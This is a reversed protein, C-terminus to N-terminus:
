NGIFRQGVLEIRIAYNLTPTVLPNLRVNIQIGTQGLIILPEMLYYFGRDENTEGAVTASLDNAGFVTLPIGTLVRQGNITADFTANKAIADRIGPQWATEDIAAAEANVGDYARFGQVIMHESEAAIFNANNPWNTRQVTFAGQFFQTIGAVMFLQDYIQYDAVTKPLSIDGYNARFFRTMAEALTGTNGKSARDMRAFWLATPNKTNGM